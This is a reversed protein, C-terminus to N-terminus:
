KLWAIGVIVPTQGADGQVTIGVVLPVSGSAIARTRCPCESTRGTLLDAAKAGELDPALADGAVFHAGRADLEM